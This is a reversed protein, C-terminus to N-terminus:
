KFGLGNLYTCEKKTNVYTKKKKMNRRDKERSIKLMGYCSDLRLVITPAFFIWRM